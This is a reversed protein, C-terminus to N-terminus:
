HLSRKQLHSFGPCLNNRTARPRVLLIRSSRALGPSGLRRTEAPVAGTWFRTGIVGRRFVRGWAPLSSGTQAGLSHKKVASLMNYENGWESVWWINVSCSNHEQSLALLHSYYLPSLVSDRQVAKYHIYAQRKEWNPLLEKSAKAKQRGLHTAPVWCHSPLVWVELALM